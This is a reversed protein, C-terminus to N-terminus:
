RSYERERKNREKCEEIFRDYRESNEKFKMYQEVLKEEDGEGYDDACLWYCFKLLEAKLDDM